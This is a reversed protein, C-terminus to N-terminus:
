RTNAARGGDGKTAALLCRVAPLNVTRGRLEGGALPTRM